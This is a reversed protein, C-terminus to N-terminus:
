LCNASEVRHRSMRADFGPRGPETLEEVAGAVVAVVVAAVVVVVVVVVVVAAGAAAVVAAVVDVVMGLSTDRLSSGVFRKSGAVEPVVV